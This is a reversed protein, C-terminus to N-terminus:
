YSNRMLSQLESTHEESRSLFACPEADHRCAKEIAARQPHPWDVARRKVPPEFREVPGIVGCEGLSQRVHPTAKTTRDQDIEMRHRRNRDPLRTVARSDNDAVAKAAAGAFPQDIPHHCRRPAQAFDHRAVLRIRATMDDPCM